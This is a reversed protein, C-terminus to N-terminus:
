KPASNSVVECTQDSEASVLFVTITQQAVQCQFGWWPKLGRGQCLHQSSVSLSEIKKGLSALIDTWSYSNCYLRQICQQVIGHSVVLGCKMEQWKRLFLDSTECHAPSSFDEFLIEKWTLLYPCILHCLCPPHNWHQVLPSCPIHLGLHM